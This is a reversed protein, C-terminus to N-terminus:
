AAEELIQASAGLRQLKQYAISAPVFQLDGNPVLHMSPSEVRTMLEEAFRSVESPDELLSNRADIVGAMVSKPWQPPVSALSTAYFDIGISEVPLDVLDELLPGADGFVLQLALPLASGLAQLSEGLEGPDYPSGFLSAEQLVVLACGNRALWEIQPRLVADAIQSASVGGPSASLRAFAYPSPLSAVWAGQPLAPPSFFPESLPKRLKPTAEMLPARFFTNTALFRTLPGPSMGEATEAIPRFIDQWALLGDSLLALGAGAQAAVLAERDARQRDLVVDAGCRGRDFDRTAAVLEDSRAYIGPIHAKIETM